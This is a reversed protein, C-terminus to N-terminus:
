NITGGKRQFALRPSGNATYIIGCYVFGYKRLIHQMVTNDRHTDVRINDAHALCWRFCADAVGKEEGSTALRHVTAYPSHDLWRGEIHQYTPDEGKIFSFVGVIHETPTICVYCHGEEIDREILQRSPYGNIWQQTNGTTSMLRTAYQYIDMLRNLDDMGAPRIYIM